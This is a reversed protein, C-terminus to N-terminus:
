DESSLGYVRIANNRLFASEVEPGLELDSIERMTREFALVPYDTGFL